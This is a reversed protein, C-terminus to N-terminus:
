GEEPAGLEFFKIKITLDNGNEGKLIKVWKKEDNVEITYAGECNNVNFEEIKEVIYGPDCDTNFDTKDNFSYNVM